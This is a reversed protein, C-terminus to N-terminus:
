VQKKKRKEERREFKETQRANHALTLNHPTRLTTRAAGFGVSRRRRGVVVVVVFFLNSNSFLFLTSAEHASAPTENWVTLNKGDLLDRARQWMTRQTTGCVATQIATAMCCVM